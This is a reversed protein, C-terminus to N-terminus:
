LRPLLGSIQSLGLANLLRTVSFVIWPTGEGTAPSTGAGTEIVAFWNVPVTVHALLLPIGKAGPCHNVGPLLYLAIIVNVAFLPKSKVPKAAFKKLTVPAIDEVLVLPLLVTVTDATKQDVGVIEILVTSKGIGTIPACCPSV